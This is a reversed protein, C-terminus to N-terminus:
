QSMEAAVLCGRAVAYLCDDPKRVEGIPIPLKALNVAEKFLEVFGNPLATGGAVIIDLPQESKVNGSNEITKKINSVTNEIMIRYQTQIARDIFDTPAAILDITHKRKNITVIKEGTAKAAQQDIWDGSNVISFSSVEVGYMAYCFNVMGAGASIALGTFQKAGLEAYVLALAENIPHPVITKGDIKYTKFIDALV